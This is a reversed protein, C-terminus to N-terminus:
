DGPPRRADRRCLEQQPQISQSAAREYVKVLVWNKGIEAVLELEAPLILETLPFNDRSHRRDVWEM